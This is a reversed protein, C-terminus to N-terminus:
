FVYGKQRAQVQEPFLSLFWLKRTFKNLFSVLFDYNGHTRIYTRVDTRGYTVNQNFNKTLTKFFHDGTLVTYGILVLSPDYIFWSLSSMKILDFTVQHPWLDDSTLNYFISWIDMEKEFMWRNSWLKTMSSDCFAACQQHPWLDGVSTLPWNLQLQLIHELNGNRELFNM